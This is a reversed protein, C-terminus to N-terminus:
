KNWKIRNCANWHVNIAYLTRGRECEFLQISLVSYGNADFYVITRSEFLVRGIYHILLKLALDKMKWKLCNREKTPEHMCWEAILGYAIPTWILIVYWIIRIWIFPNTVSQVVINGTRGPVTRCVAYRHVTIWSYAYVHMYYNSNIWFFVMGGAVLVVFLIIFLVKPM